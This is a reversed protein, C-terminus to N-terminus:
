RTRGSRNITNGSAFNIDASPTIDAKLVRQMLELVLTNHAADESAVCDPPVLVLLDRMYQTMPAHDAFLTGM